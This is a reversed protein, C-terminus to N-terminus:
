CIYKACLNIVKIDFYVEVKAVNAVASEVEVPFILVAYGFGALEGQIVGISPFFHVASLDRLALEAGVRPFGHEELGNTATMSRNVRM